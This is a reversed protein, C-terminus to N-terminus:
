GGVQRLGLWRCTSPIHRLVLREAAFVALLSLGLMPLLLALAIILAGFAWGAPSRGVPIPAGLMGEPRRRWWLVASSVSLLMLGIATALGLLQNALGFLQGEHAAVGYGVIRDILRRQPFDERSLVRGADDLTLNTRLPRNAADSKATWPAGAHTPPAILVPGALRLPSVRAVIHDLAAYSARPHTMSMGMHDAHDGLMTRTGPDEGTPWDQRIPAEARISRAAKLYSGWSAAWPLGSILLFLAFFSVWFGTVAHIDRWFVRRGGHLRPYLLGAAGSAQRPWWLYLGTLIMVIAWSAALEVIWSGRKGMMLEGHLRFVIRMLRDDEKVM